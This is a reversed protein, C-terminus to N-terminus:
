RSHRTFVRNYRYISVYLELERKSEKVARKKCGSERVGGIRDQSDRSIYGLTVKLTVSNLQRYIM